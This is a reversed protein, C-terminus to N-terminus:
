RYRAKVDGWNLVESGVPDCPWFSPEMGTSIIFDGEMGSFLEGHLSMQVGSNGLEEAGDPYVGDFFSLEPWCNETCTQFYTYGEFNLFYGITTPGPLCDAHAYNHRSPWYIFTENGEADVAWIRYIADFFPIDPTITMDLHTQGIAPWPMVDTVWANDHCLGLVQREIVWGVFIADPEQTVNFDISLIVDDGSCGATMQVVTGIPPDEWAIAGAAFCFTMMTSILLATAIRKM